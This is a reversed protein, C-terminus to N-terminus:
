TEIEAKIEGSKIAETFVEYDRETQDAYLRAFTGIAQDFVDSKGVYGSVTAADGSRAHARALTWGCVEAYRGLQISPMMDIDFSYKMDRLQRIYFQRHEKGTGTAWGLLMDSASQMLRQGVVVREGHHKFVSEGAYPELVSANAEKIQLLLPDNDEAMLLAVGCMTGVSGVGVVKVAVDEFRYRDLLIRREYPLTERYQDFIEILREPLKLEKPPHYILPPQDVLARRGNIVQTIKPFISETVSSKAKEAMLQRRRKSEADPASAILTESDLKAYWVDLVKMSSFKAIAERYAQIGKRTVMKCDKESFKNNRSAVYFSAALRKIDWEFPAPLTEDFDNIDFILNREPTAFMGFNSLHCDGCAQVIIDTTTTSAIDMAMLSASGRLFAFPSKSMRGYRIPILHKWRGESSKKVVEVPNPRDSAPEFEAHAERPFEKRRDKGEQKRQDRMKYETIFRAMDYEDREITVAPNTKKM